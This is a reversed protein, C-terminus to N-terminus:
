ETGLVWSFPDTCEGPISNTGLHHVLHDLRDDRPLNRAHDLGRRHHPPHNQNRITAGRLRVRLEDGLGDAHARGALNAIGSGLEKPLLPDRRLNELSALLLLRLERVLALRNCALTRDLRLETLREARDVEGLAPAVDHRRRERALARDAARERLTTERRRLEALPDGFTETAAARRRLRLHLHRVDSADLEVLERAKGVADEARRDLALRVLRLEAGVARVELARFLDARELTEEDVVLFRRLEPEAVARLLDLRQLRRTALELRERTRLHGRFDDEVVREPAGRLAPRPRVDDHRPALRRREALREHEQVVLLGLLLLTESAPLLEVHAPRRRPGRPRAIHPMHLLLECLLLLHVLELLRLVVDVVM